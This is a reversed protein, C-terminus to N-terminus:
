LGSPHDLFTWPVHFRAELAEALARVGFTETAYHGAYYVNVGLEMAQLFTHHPGEGTVLTDLGAEVAEEIFGGGGGTVVGVRRVREPGGPLLKVEGGVVDALRRRLAERNEDADGAWGIPVGRFTGFRESPDLGMARALLVCNGVEAHADLPLHASYLSVGGEILLKVKRYHPGTLPRLGGWFLGHHVLLLQCGRDVADQISAEGADVAAAVQAVRGPGEVQLGNLAGEYDPFDPLALYSDMFHLMDELLM